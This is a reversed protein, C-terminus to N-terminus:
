VGMKIKLVPVVSKLLAVIGNVRKEVTTPHCAEINNSNFM